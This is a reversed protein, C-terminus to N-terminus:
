KDDAPPFQGESYDPEDEESTPNNDGEGSEEDEEEQNDGGKLSTTFDLARNAPRRRGARVLKQAEKAKKKVVLAKLDEQGQTLTLFM